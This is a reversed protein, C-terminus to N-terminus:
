GPPTSASLTRLKQANRLMVITDALGDVWTVVVVVDADGDIRLYSAPQGNVVTATMTLERAALRRGLNALYRSVRYRGIVPQRAARAEAGGDALVMAEESVLQELAAYDGTMAALSFAENLRELDAPSPAYRRREARVRQRARVGVQRTAAPSRDVITAVEDFPVDFVDHLLFVVREVPGLKELVALFGITLSEALLAAQAPDAEVGTLAVARDPHVPEALWPGVYTERRRAASRLRDLALRSVVTTMWAAPNAVASRDTNHWRIWAEQVIEDADAGTGIIRYAVGWLRDSETAFVALPDDGDDDDDRVAGTAGPANM